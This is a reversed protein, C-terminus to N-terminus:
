ITLPSISVKSLQFNNYMKLFELSESCGFNEDTVDTAKLCIVYRRRYLIHCDLLLERGKPLVSQSGECPLQLLLCCKEGFKWYIQLFNCPTRQGGLLGVNINYEDSV